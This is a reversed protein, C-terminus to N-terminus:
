GPKTMRRPVITQKQALRSAWLIHISCSRQIISCAFAVAFISSSQSFSTLSQTGETPTFECSNLPMLLYSWPMDMSKVFDPVVSLSPRLTRSPTVPLQGEPLMIAIMPGDPHPLVVQM